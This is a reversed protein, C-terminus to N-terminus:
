PVRRYEGSLAKLRYSSNFGPLSGGRIKNADRVGTEETRRRQLTGTEKKAPAKRNLSALVRLFAQTSAPIRAPTTSITSAPYLYPARQGCLAASPGAARGQWSGSIRGPPGPGPVGTGLEFVLRHMNHIYLMRGAQRRAVSVLPVSM